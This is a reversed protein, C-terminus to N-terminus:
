DDRSQEHHRISRARSDCQATQGPFIVLPLRCTHLASVAMVPRVASYVDAVVKKKKESYKRDVILQTWLYPDWLYLASLLEAQGRQNTWNTASSYPPAM